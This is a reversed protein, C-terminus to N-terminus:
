VGSRRRPARMLRTGCSGPLESFGTFGDARLHAFDQTQMLFCRRRAYLAPAPRSVFNPEAVRFLADILIGM